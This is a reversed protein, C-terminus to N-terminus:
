EFAPPARPNCAISATVCVCREPRAPIPLLVDVAVPDPSPQEVIRISIRFDPLSIEAFLESRPRRSYFGRQGIGASDKGDDGGAVARGGRVVGIPGFHIEVLGDDVGSM